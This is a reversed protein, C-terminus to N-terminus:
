SELTSPTGSGPPGPAKMREELWERWVATAVALAVPGIFLGVLGFAAIGGIAGFMVLLFPVQTTNSILLPRLVNDVPHVLLTCWALLAFGPWLEGNALLTLVVVSWVLGTGVVPIISAFITLAGLVVPARVGVIAYGVGALTGQALATILFGFVVARVMAGAARVYRELRDDFLRSLLTRAQRVLLAGDRFVFFVTIITVVLKVINRGVSGIVGLLEDRSDTAWEAILKRFVLPDAAYRDIAQQIADGLWPVSRVFAPLTV